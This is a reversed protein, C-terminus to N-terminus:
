TTSHCGVCTYDEADSETQKACLTHVWISCKCCEIWTVDKKDSPDNFCIGCVKIETQHLKTRVTQFETINAKSVSRVSPQHKKKTSHYRFQKKHNANPAYQKSVPLQVM